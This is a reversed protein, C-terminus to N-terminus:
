KATKRAVLLLSGGMPFILGLRIMWREVDLIREAMTNMFNSVKLEPMPNSTPSLQRKKYRSIIMLPFLLSVFSTMKLVKFGANEVKTSLVKASYRRFHHAYEDTQSWLFPHQPVTLIIGGNQRVAQNMQKLMLEDDEIHELVDFAGMVEFEDDFPIKRADMQLLETRSLRKSAFDLGTIFAEGGYLKLKPFAREICSLVFGNGCGLEFFNQTNSFYKRLSWIILRSRARFWYNKDEIDALQKFIDDKFGNIHKTIEPSFALYGGIIKPRKHCAPCEWGESQFKANCELCVKM